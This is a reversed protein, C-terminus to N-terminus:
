LSYNPLGSCQCPIYRAQRSLESGAAVIAVPGSIQSAVSSFDFVVKRIGGAVSGALRLLENRALTLAEVPSRARTHRMVANTALEAGIRGSGDSAAVDPVLTQAQWM